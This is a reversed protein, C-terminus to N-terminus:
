KSYQNEVFSGVFNKVEMFCLTEKDWFESYTTLYKVTQSTTGGLLGDKNGVWRNLFSFSNENQGLLQTMIANTVMQVIM